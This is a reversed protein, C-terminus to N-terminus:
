RRAALEGEALLGLGDPARRRFVKTPTAGALERFDRVLHAQDAYGCDLAFDAWRVARRTQLDAFAAEFRAIRAFTKPTLGVDARFRASSHRHSWGAAAVLDAIAVGGRRRVIEAVAFRV